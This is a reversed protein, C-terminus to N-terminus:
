FKRDPEDLYENEEWVVSLNEIEIVIVCIDKDVFVGQRNLVIAEKDLEIGSIIFLFTKHKEFALRAATQKIDSVVFVNRTIEKRKNNRDKVILKVVHYKKETM